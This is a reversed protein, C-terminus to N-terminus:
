KQVQALNTMNLLSHSTAKLPALLHKYLAEMSKKPLKKFLTYLIKYYMRIAFLHKIIVQEPKDIFFELDFALSIWENLIFKSFDQNSNNDQFLVSFHDQFFKKIQKKLKDSEALYVGEKAILRVLKLLELLM